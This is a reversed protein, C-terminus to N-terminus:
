QLHQFHSTKRYSCPFPPLVLAGPADPDHRPKLEVVKREVSQADNHSKFPKAAKSPRPPAVVANLSLPFILSM